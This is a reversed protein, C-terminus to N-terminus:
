QKAAPTQAKKAALVRETATMKQGGQTKDGQPLEVGKPRIGLKLLEARVRGDFDQQGARLNANEAIYRDREATMATLNTRATDREGTVTALQTRASDRETTVTALETRATDREGTVTALQTRATDREGTLSTITTRAETLQTVVDNENEKAM